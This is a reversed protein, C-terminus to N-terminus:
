TVGLVRLTTLTAHTALRTAEGKAVEIIQGLSAQLIWATTRTGKGPSTHLERTPRPAVTHPSPEAIELVKNAEDSHSIKASLRDLQTPM